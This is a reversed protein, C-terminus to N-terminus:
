LMPGVRPPSIMHAPVCFRQKDMQVLGTLSLLAGVAMPLRYNNVGVAVGLDAESRRFNLLYEESVLRNRSLMLGRFVVEPSKVGTTDAYLSMPLNNSFTVIDSLVPVERAFFEELKM